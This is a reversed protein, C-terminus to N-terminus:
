MLMGFKNIDVSCVFPGRDRTRVDKHHRHTKAGREYNAVALPLNLLDAYGMRCSRTLQRASGLGHGAAVMFSYVPKHFKCIM